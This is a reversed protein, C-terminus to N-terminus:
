NERRFIGNFDLSETLPLFKKLYVFDNKIFAKIIEEASHLCEKARLEDPNEGQIANPSDIDITEVLVYRKAIRCLQTIAKGLDLNRVYCLVDISTVVDFQQYEFPLNTIEAQRIWIKAPSYKLAYPSVETGSAEYGIKRLAMILGGMGCGVDLFKWHRQPKLLRVIKTAYDQGEQTYRILYDDYGDTSYYLKNFLHFNPSKQAISKM